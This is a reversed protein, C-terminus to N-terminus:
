IDSNLINDSGCRDPCPLCRDMCANQGGIQDNEESTVGVVVMGLDNSNNEAFYIKIGVCNDQNLLKQIAKKSFYGGKYEGSNNDRFRKTLVAADEFSIEHDEQGTFM